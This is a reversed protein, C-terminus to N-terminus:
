TVCNNILETNVSCEHWTSPFWSSDKSMNKAGVSTSTKQQLCIIFCTVVCIFIHYCITTVCRKEINIHRCSIKRSPAQGTCQLINLSMRPRERGVLLRRGSNHCSLIAGSIAQHGWPHFQRQHLVVAIPSFYTKVFLQQRIAAPLVFHLQSLSLSTHAPLRLFYCKSSAKFPLLGPSSTFSHSSGERCPFLLHLCGSTSCIHHTGPVSLFNPWVPNPSGTLSNPYKELHLPFGIPVM